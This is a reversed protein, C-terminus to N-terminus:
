KKHAVAVIFIARDLGRRSMSRVTDSTVLFGIKSAPRLCLDVVKSRIADTLVEARVPDCARRVMGALSRFGRARTIWPTSQGFLSVGEFRKALINQLEQLDMESCHFPNKPGNKSIKLNPTSVILVGGPRLVRACEELFQGPHEVHEITEFSVVLDVSNSEVPISEASGVRADIQYCLRAHEVVEPAIDVGIVSRAGGKALAASGYGEGCAVDLVDKGRARSCAFRYREVHAWFTTDDTADPLM